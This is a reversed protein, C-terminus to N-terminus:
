EEAARVVVRNRHVEVIKIKTDVPIFEGGSIVDILEDEFRAKGSPTLQTATEGEAGLLHGYQVLSERRERDEPAENEPPALLMKNLLPTHPLYRRMVAAVGFFAVIAGGVVFLSDRLERVQGESSPLVFTQSALVLSILIMVGGGLGFIGFGPIIFVELVLCAIGVLFLVIELAGATGELFNAWFYLTFAVAALFGGVGIGPMQLEAYMGALGILLLLWSLRPSALASILDDVWTPEALAPDDGLGYEQKLEDFNEVVTALDVNEAETGNLRLPQGATHIQEGRQWEEEDQLDAAAAPSFFSELGTRRNKYRFVDIDDKFMAALLSGSRSKGPALEEEVFAVVDLIDQDELEEAGGGIVADPRMVLDDCAVAVLTSMGTAETPVFAVTLVEHSKQQLLFTALQTAAELEGGGAEIWLCIFNARDDIADNIMKIRTEAMRADIPRDIRIMRARLEGELFPNVQIAAAPLGLQAALEGRTGALYAVIGLDRAERGTLVGAEGKGFLVQTKDEAITKIERLADLDKEFVFEPGEETEVRLLERSADLMGLAIEVPVTRRSRAIQEYGSLVTEDIPQDEDHDAGADGLEADASMVIQECAIAVLVAHGKISRPLYAVTRVGGLRASVLFRALKLADEFESGRGFETQGPAFELVLTPRAEGEAEELEALARRIQQVVRRDVNGTIPLPLRILRGRIEEASDSANQEEDTETGDVAKEQEVNAREDDDEQARVRSDNPSNWIALAALVAVLSLVRIGFRLWSSSCRHRKLKM